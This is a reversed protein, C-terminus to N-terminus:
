SITNDLSLLFAKVYSQNSYPSASTQVKTSSKDISNLKEAVSSKNGKYFSIFFKIHVNKRINAKAQM